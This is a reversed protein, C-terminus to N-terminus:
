LGVAREYILEPSDTDKWHSDYTAIICYNTLLLERPNLSPPVTTHKPGVAKQKTQEKVRCEFDENRM